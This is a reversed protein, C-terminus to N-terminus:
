PFTEPGVKDSYSFIFFFSVEGPLKCFVISVTRYIIIFMLLSKIQILNTIEM